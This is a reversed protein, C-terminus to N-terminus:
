QPGGAYVFPFVRSMGRFFLASTAAFFAITALRVLSRGVASHRRGFRELRPSALVAPIQILFFLLQSGDWRSTALGFMAEHLLGSFTFVIAVGRVPRRRGGTPVFVHRELWDHVRNNYRRWFEAPTRALFASRIVPKVDFGALRELGYLAQSVAEIAPIFLAFKVLHDFVFSSQLIPLRNLAHLLVVILAFIMTGVSIRILHPQPPDAIALRRKHNPFVVAMAPIPILFWMYDRFSMPAPRRFADVVKLAVENVLFAALARFGIRDAPVSVVCILIAPLLLWALRGSTREPLRRFIVGALVAIAFAAAVAAALASV